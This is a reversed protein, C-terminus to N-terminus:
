VQRCVGPIPKKLCAYDRNPETSRNRDAQNCRCATVNRRQKCACCCTWAPCSCESWWKNKFVSLSLSLCTKMGCPRMGGELRHTFLEPGQAGLRLKQDQWSPRARWCPDGHWLRPDSNGASEALFFGPGWLFTLSVSWYGAGWPPSVSQKDSLKDLRPPLYPCDPRQPNASLSFISSPFFFSFLILCTLLFPM